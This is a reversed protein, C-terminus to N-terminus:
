LQSDGRHGLSSCICQWKICPCPLPHPSPCCFSTKGLTDSIRAGARHLHQINSEKRGRLSQHTSGSQCGASFTIFPTAPNWDSGGINDGCIGNKPVGDKYLRSAEAFLILDSNELPTDKVPLNAANRRGYTKLLYPSGGKRPRRRERPFLQCSQNYYM